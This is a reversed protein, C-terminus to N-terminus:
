LSPLQHNKFQERLKLKQMKGTATLPIKDIFVVDDPICWKAVKGVFFQLIDAKLAEDSLDLDLKKEIVLLPREDWKPHAVSICAAMMVSPHGVAVNELDISSIWEGGSKIVDKSRDTIQMNGDADINSVDGTPFWGDILASENAKFYQQIVWPGKVQLDGFAKGDQALENLNGDVIRMDVGFIVRGQKQLIIEQDHINKSLDSAKLKAVTGIPSLETMGWAHIVEVGYEQLTRMMAPPCASGGIVVRNFTSFSLNQSKIYQILGAWITPVAASFTVKESELLEYISPGDM